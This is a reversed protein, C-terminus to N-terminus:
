VRTSEVNCALSRTCRRGANGVGETKLPSVNMCVEPSSRRSFAFTHATTMALETGAKPGVRISSVTGHYTAVAKGLGV